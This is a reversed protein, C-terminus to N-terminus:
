QDGRQSQWFQWFQKIADATEQPKEEAPLHGCNPITVSTIHDAILTMQDGVGPHGYQGNLALVPLQLRQQTAAVIQESTTLVERYWGFSGHLGGPTKLGRVYENKDESTISTPDAVMSSLFYDIIETEKGEWMLAPLHPQANFAFWWYVFPNEQRFATFTDLNYGPLPEDFYGLAKVEDPHHAAYLLAPLAGMDHGIVTVNQLGLLAVVARLDEKLTLGDYGTYPKTSDGYGRMDVAVVKFSDALIPMLRRWSYSTGLWGHVLLIAPGEGGMVFRLSQGNVPLKGHVFRPDDKVTKLQTPHAM